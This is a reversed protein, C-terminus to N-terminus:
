RAVELGGTCRADRLGFGCTCAPPPTARVADLEAIRTLIAAHAEAITRVDRHVVEAVFTGAVPYCRTVMGGDVHVTYTDDGVKLILSNAAYGRELLTTLDDLSLQM